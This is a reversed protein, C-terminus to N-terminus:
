KNTKKVKPINCRNIEKIIFSIFWVISMEEICQGIGFNRVHIKRDEVWDLDLSDLKVFQFSAQLRRLASTFSLINRRQCRIYSMMSCLSVTLMLQLIFPGAFFM